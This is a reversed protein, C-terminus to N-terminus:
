VAGELWVVCRLHVELWDGDGGRGGPSIGRDGVGKVGGLGSCIVGIGVGIRPM